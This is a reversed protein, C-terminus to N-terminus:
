VIVCSGVIVGGVRRVPLVAITVCGAETIIQIVDGSDPTTVIGDPMGMIAVSGQVAVKGGSGAHM